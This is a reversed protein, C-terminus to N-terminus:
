IFTKALKTTKIEFQTEKSHSVNSENVPALTEVPKRKTSSNQTKSNKRDGKSDYFVISFAFRKQKTVFKTGRSFRMQMHLICYFVCTRLKFKRRESNASMRRTSYFM